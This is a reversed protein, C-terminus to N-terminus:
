HIQSEHFIGQVFLSFNCIPLISMPQAQLRRGLIRLLPCASANLSDGRRRKSMTIDFSSYSLLLHQVIVSSMSGRQILQENCLSVSEQVTPILSFNCCERPRKWRHLSGSLHIKHVSPLLFYIDDHRLPVDQLSINRRKFHHHCCRHATM